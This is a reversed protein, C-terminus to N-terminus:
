KCKQQAAKTVESVDLNGSWFLRLDCSESRLLCLGLNFLLANSLGLLFTSIICKSKANYPASHVLLRAKTVGVWGWLHILFQRFEVTKTELISRLDPAPPMQLKLPSHSICNRRPVAWDGLPFASELQKRLSFSPLEYTGSVMIDSHDDFIKLELTAFSTLTFKSWLLVDYEMKPQTSQLFHEFDAVLLM